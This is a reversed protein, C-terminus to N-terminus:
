HFCYRKSKVMRLRIIIKCKFGSNNFHVASQRICELTKIQLLFKLENVLEKQIPIWFKSKDASKLVATSTSSEQLLRFHYQM